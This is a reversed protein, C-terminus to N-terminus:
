RRVNKEKEERAKQKIRNFVEPSLEKNCLEMFIDSISNEVKLIYIRDSIARVQMRKIRCAKRKNLFLVDDMKNGGNKYERTAKSIAEEHDSIQKVLAGRLEFLQIMTMSDLDYLDSGITIYRKM